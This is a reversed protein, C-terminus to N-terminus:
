ALTTAPDVVDTGTSPRHHDTTADPDRHAASDVAALSRTSRMAWLALSISIAALVLHVVVFGVSYDGLPITVIRTAWLAISAWGAVSVLRHALPAPMPRVAVVAVVLGVVVFGIARALDVGDGGDKAVINYIRNAWVLLTWMAFVAVALPKCRFMAPLNTASGADSDM